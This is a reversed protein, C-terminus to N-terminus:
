LAKEIKKIKEIRRKHREEGSFSTELFVKVIRKATAADTLDASLSLVNVDDDKRAAQAM